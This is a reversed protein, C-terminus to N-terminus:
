LWPLYIREYFRGGHRRIDQLKSDQSESDIDQPDFPAEGLGRGKNSILKAWPDAEVALTNM